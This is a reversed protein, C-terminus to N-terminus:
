PHISFTINRIMDHATLPQDCPGRGCLLKTLTYGPYHGLGWPFVRSWGSFVGQTQTLVSLGVLIGDCLERDVYIDGNQKYFEDTILIVENQM